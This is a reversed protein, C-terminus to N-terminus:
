HLIKSILSKAWSLIATTNRTLKGNIIAELKNIEDKELSFLDSCELLREARSIDDTNGELLASVDAKWEPFYHNLLVHLEGSFIDLNFQEDLLKPQTFKDM